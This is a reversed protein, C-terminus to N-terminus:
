CVLHEQGEVLFGELQKMCVEEQLYGRLFSIALDMQHVTLGNIAALAIMTHVHESRIVASFM